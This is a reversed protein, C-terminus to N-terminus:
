RYPALGAHAAAMCEDDFDGPGVITSRDRDLPCILPWKKRARADIASWDQEINPLQKRQDTKGFVQTV